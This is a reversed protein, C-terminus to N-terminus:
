LRSSKRGSRSRKSRKSRRTKRRGGIPATGPGPQSASAGAEKERAAAIKADFEEMAKQKDVELDGSSKSGFLNGFFNM